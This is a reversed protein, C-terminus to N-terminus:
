LDFDDASLTLQGRLRVAMSTALDADVTVHVITNDGVIAVRVQGPATFPGAGVFVLADNGPTIPNADIGTLDIVDIGAEFDVITDFATSVSGSDTLAAFVFRDAGEGGVLTDIGAGGILTDNGDDGRLTDIDDGGILLDDGAGGLLFDRGAGGDLLDSGNFGSLWDNGSEGILTDDGNDGNLTDAGDGGYLEDDNAGGSLRDNGTGGLLTDAGSGGNLTDSDAGGLLSDDGLGGDLSDQGEGGDLLDDGDGGLLTDNGLGGHLDDDGDDGDLLDDGENGILLDRAASGTLTDDGGTGGERDYALFADRQMVAVGSNRVIVDSLTTSWLAELEAESFGRSESWYQDGDRLRSFQDVLIAAFLEGVVGGPLADEAVGGVWAEVADVTGYAAELRAAAVPDSTIEAFSTKAELGFAVRMANYRPLGMDRGRQINLAALDFGGQLGGGLSLFSRVDDVMYSDLAQAKTTAMGRMIPDIGTATLAANNFFADRLAIDGEPIVSGDEARRAITPSLMSHGLRFAAASFEISIQPDIDPDFGQYAEIADPGIILPLFENYTIAQLIAEVRARAGEFLAERRPRCRRIPRRWSTSSATTSARSCRM